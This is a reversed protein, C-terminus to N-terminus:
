PTCDTDGDSVEPIGVIRNFCITQQEGSIHTLLIKADDGQSAGLPVGYPIFSQSTDPLFEVYIEVNPIEDLEIARSDLWLTTYTEASFTEVSNECALESSTADFHFIWKKSAEGNCVKGTLANMRAELLHNFITAVEGQFNVQSRMRSFSPVTIAVLIAVIGTVVLLELLSFGKKKRM